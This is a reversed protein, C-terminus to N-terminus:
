TCGVDAHQPRLPCSLHAASPAAIQFCHCHRVNHGRPTGTRRQGAAVRAPSPLHPYLFLYLSSVLARLAEGAAGSGLAAADEGGLGLGVGLGPPPPPLAGFPLVASAIGHLTSVTHGGVYSAVGLLANGGMAVAGILAVPLAVLGDAVAAAAMAAGGERGGHAAHAAAAGTDATFPSLLGAAAGDVGASTASASAARVRTPLLTSSLPLPFPPPGAAGVTARRDGAAASLRARPSVWETAEAGGVSRAAGGGVGGDGGAWSGITWSQSRAHRAGGGAAAAAALPGGDKAHADGGGGGGARADRGVALADRAAFPASPPLEIALTELTPHRLLHLEVAAQPLVFLPCASACATGMPPRVDPLEAM